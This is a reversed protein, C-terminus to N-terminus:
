VVALILAQLYLLIRRLGFNVPRQTFNQMVGLSVEFLVSPRQEYIFYRSYYFSLNQDVCGGPLASVRGAVLAHLVLHQFAIAVWGDEEMGALDLTCEFRSVCGLIQHPHASEVDVSCIM